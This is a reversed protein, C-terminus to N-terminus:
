VDQDLSAVAEGLDAAVVASLVMILLADAEADLRAGRASTTGIARALRGDILDTLLAVTVLVGVLWRPGGTLAVAGVIPALVLRVGTVTNPHVM